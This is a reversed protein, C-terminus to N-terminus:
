FPIDDDLFAANASTSANNSSAPAGRSHDDQSMHSSGSQDQRQQKGGIMRMEDAIIETSYREVGQADTWKRTRIKGEVYIMDGKKLYQHVIDALAGFFIVRHWETIQKREGTQKDKRMESTAISLTVIKDGSASFRVDPDSGLNGVLIVKNVSM